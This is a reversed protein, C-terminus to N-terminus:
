RYPKLLELLKPNVRYGLKEAKKCHLMALQHNGMYYYAFSLDQHAEPYRGKNAIAKKFELVAEDLEGRKQYLVGLKYHVEAYRPKITVARRYEFLAENSLGKADYVSGLAYHVEAYNSNLTLARKFEPIAEDLMGKKLYAYGLSFYAKEHQPNITLTHKYSAIAEDIKGQDFLAIGLNYHSFAVSNPYTDAVYHWLSEPNRWIKIQQITINGLLFFVVSIFLFFIGGLLKKHNTMSIKEFVWVTGIGMLLFISINSLYTYRDAAAQNGVQIIGIMPLLAVVYFLWTALFLLKRKKAMWLCFGTLILILIGSLLYRADLWDSNSALPYYPVLKIPVITKELYFIITNIANLIRPGLHFQELSKLSGANHQVLITIISDFISLVFFPMKELLIYFSKRLSLNIRKLPYCDFVLLLVPLTVAMPKAMLAFLFLFLSGAFWMWRQLIHVTSVYMLYCQFTLLVFFACLLNKREAIWAVSEVQLPHLAFLLATVSAAILFRTSVPLPIEPSTAMYNANSAKVMLQIVFLFLLVTNLGHLIINTLHYGFPDFGWSAYDIAHSLSTLPHWNGMNRVTFMTYLSRTDLSRITSNATIYGYDDWVFVNKLTPSYVICTLMFVAFAIWAVKLLIDESFMEKPLQQNRSPTKASYEDILSKIVNSKLGTRHSLQEMSLQNFNKEIFKRKKNSIKPM